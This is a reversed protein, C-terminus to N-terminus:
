HIRLEHTVCPDFGAIIRQANSTFTDDDGENAEALKRLARAAIGDPAFNIRTPQIVEYREIRGGAATVAHLLLGRPSWATGIGVNGREITEFASQQPKAQAVEVANRMTQPLHALAYLTDLLAPYGARSDPMAYRDALRTDPVVPNCAAIAAAAPCGDHLSRALADIQAAGLPSRTALDAQATEQHLIRGALRAPATAGCRAWAEVAAFCDRQLWSAAPEGFVFTELLREADSILGEAYSADVMLSANADFPDGDGFLATKMCATLPMVARACRVDLPEGALGAWSVTVKLLGERLAEMATMAERAAALPELVQRCEARALAAAAAEGHANACIGYLLPAMRHAEAVTKGCLLKSAADPMNLAICVDAPKRRIDIVVRGASNIALPTLVSM